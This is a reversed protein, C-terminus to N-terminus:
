STFFNDVNEHFGGSTQVRVQHIWHMKEYGTEKLNIKMNDMWVVLDESHIEARRIKWSFEIHM